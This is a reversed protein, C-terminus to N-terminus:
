IHPDVFEDVVPLIAVDLAYLGRSEPPASAYTAFNDPAPLRM